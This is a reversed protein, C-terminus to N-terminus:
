YFPLIEVRNAQNVGQKVTYTVKVIEGSKGALGQATNEAGVIATTETYIFQMEKNDANRVTLMKAETNVQVLSGQFVMAEQQQAQLTEERPVASQQGAACADCTLAMIAALLFVWRSNNRMSGEQSIELDRRGQLSSEMSACTTGKKT